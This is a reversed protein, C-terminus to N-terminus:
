GHLMEREVVSRFWHELALLTRLARKHNHTDPVQAEVMKEFGSTCVDKRSYAHESLVMTCFAISLIRRSGNM